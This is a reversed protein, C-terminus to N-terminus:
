RENPLWPPPVEWLGRGEKALLFLSTTNLVVLTANRAAITAANPMPNHPATPKAEGLSL